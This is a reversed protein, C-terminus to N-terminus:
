IYYNLNCKKLIKLWVVRWIQEVIMVYRRNIVMMSQNRNM